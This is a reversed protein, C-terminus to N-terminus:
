SLLMVFEVVGLTLVIINSPIVNFSCLLHRVFARTNFDVPKLDLQLAVRIVSLSNGWDLM